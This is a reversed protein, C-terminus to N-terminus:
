EVWNRDKLLQVITDAEPMTLLFLRGDKAAIHLHIADYRMWAIGSAPIEDLSYPSEELSVCVIGDECFYINGNKVTGDALQFNGNAKHFIPSTIKGEFAAYKRNLMKEYCHLFISLLLSFLIGSLFAFGVANELVMIDMVWWVALGFFGGLIASLMHLPKM